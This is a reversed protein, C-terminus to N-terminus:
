GNPVVDTIEREPRPHEKRELEKPTGIRKARIFRGLTSRGGKNKCARAGLLAALGDLDIELVVDCRKKVTAKTHNTRYSGGGGQYEVEVTETETDTYDITFTDRM